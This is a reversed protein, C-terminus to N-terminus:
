CDGRDFSAFGAAPRQSVGGAQQTELWNLRALMKDFTDYEIRKGGYVVVRAGTAIARKIADIENTFDIAM